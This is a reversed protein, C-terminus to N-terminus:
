GKLMDPCASGMLRAASGTEEALSASSVLAAEVKPHMPYTAARNKDGDAQATDAKTNWDTVEAKIASQVKPATAKGAATDLDTAMQRETTVLEDYTRLNDSRAHYASFAQTVETCGAPQGSGGTTAMVVAATGGVVVAGAAAAAAAKGQALKAALRATRSAERAARATHGVAQVAQSTTAETQGTHVALLSLASLTAAVAVRDGELLNRAQEETHVFYDVDTATGGLGAAKKGLAYLQLATQRRGSRLALPATIRAFRAATAWQRTDELRRAVALLLHPDPPPQTDAGALQTTLGDAATRADTRAWDQRIVAAVADRTIRYADGERTVLRRDYLEPASDASQPNGTIAVFWAPALPTNFTALAVLVQRAPESLAVALTEAQHQPTLEGSPDIEPPQDFPGESARTRWEDSGKIFEAYQLLRQPWGRSASYAHDFQLNRLGTPDLQLGLGASLLETAADRGLPQVHHAVGPAPLTRYPSTFLFTCSGFTGLLRSMDERSLTSDVVTIHVAAEAVAARLMTEDVQRLFGKGFFAKALRDYLTQLTDGGGGDPLLVHGRTGRAALRQHVAQTIAKRGVGEQGYLQVSRGAALQDTVQEVLAARGFLEAPSTDTLVPATLLPLEMVSRIEAFQGKDYIVNFANDGINVIGHNSGEIVVLSGGASEDANAAPLDEYPEQPDTGGSM